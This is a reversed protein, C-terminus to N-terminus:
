QTTGLAADHRKKLYNGMTSDEYESFIQAQINLCARALHSVSPETILNKEFYYYAMRIFFLIQKVKIRFSIKTAAQNNDKV